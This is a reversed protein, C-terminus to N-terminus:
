QQDQVQKVARDEMQQDAADLMTTEFVKQANKQQMVSMQQIDTEQEDVHMISDDDSNSADPGAHSADLNDVQASALKHICSGEM